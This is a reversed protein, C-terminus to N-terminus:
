KSLWLKEKFCQLGGPYNLDSFDTFFRNKFITGYNFIIFTFKIQAYNNYKKIILKSILMKGFVFLISIAGNSQPRPWAVLLMGKIVPKNASPQSTKIAASPVM